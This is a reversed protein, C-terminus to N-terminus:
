ITIKDLFDKDPMRSSKVADLIAEGLVDAALTGAVIPDVKIGSPISVAYVTDGDALTGVPAICRGFASGAVKAISCCEGKSFDANTLIVGLTTNAHELISAQLNVAPEGAKEGSGAQEAETPRDATEGSGAQETEAPSDSAKEDGATQLSETEKVVLGGAMKKMEEVMDLYGTREENMVGGVIEGTKPDYVNGYANVVAIAAIQLEGYQYAAYGIGSKTGRRIGYLKGVSAGTGAGIIGSMPHNGEANVCAQYGMEADPIIGNRGIGLDFISSQCVLPITFKVLHYGVGREELYRMVGGSADLGFASGGSLVIAHLAHDATTPFLLSPERAAPGGGSIEIGGHNEKDFLIVTVGTMGEMSQANGIRFGEMDTISIKQITKTEMKSM